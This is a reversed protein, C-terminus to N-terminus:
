QAGVSSKSLEYQARVSSKSPDGWFPRIPRMFLFPHTAWILFVRALSWLLQLCTRIQAQRCMNGSSTAFFMKLKDQWKRVGYMPYIFPFIFFLLEFAAGYGLRLTSTPSTNQERSTDGVNFYLFPSSFCSSSFREPSRQLGFSLIRVKERLRM